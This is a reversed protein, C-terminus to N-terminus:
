YLLDWIGAWYLVLNRHLGKKKTKKTKNQNKISKKCKCFIKNSLLPGSTKLTELLPAVFWLRYLVVIRFVQMTDFIILNKM